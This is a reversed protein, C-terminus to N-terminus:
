CSGTEPGAEQRYVALGEGDPGVTGEMLSRIYGAEWSGPRNRLVEETGGEKAAVTCLAHALFETVDRGEELAEAIVDAARRILNDMHRHGRTPPDTTTPVTRRPVSM